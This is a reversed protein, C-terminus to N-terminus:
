RELIQRLSQLRARTDPSFRGFEEDTLLGLSQILLLQELAASRRMDDFAAALERNRKEILRYLALFREHSSKKTNGVLGVAESLIRECFRELAVPHLDRFVKWDREPITLPM